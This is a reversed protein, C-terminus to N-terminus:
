SFNDNSAHDGFSSASSSDHSHADLDSESSWTSSAGGSHSQGLGYNDSIKGAEESSGGAIGSVKENANSDHMQSNAIQGAIIANLYDNNYGVERSAFYNKMYQDDTQNTVYLGNKDKKTIKKTKSTFDQIRKLYQRKDIDGHWIHFLDGPVYSIKGKVVEFFKKSWIEIEDLNETFAKKICTHNIQGAAAHAIIHDAGGILARDYLPVSQLIERRAGWAFGVHGHDNYMESKWNESTCFNASFSRWVKNNLQNPLASRNVKSLDFGPREENQELHVCYEFPQLINKFKLKEVSEIMWNLNTFLVDADIWFIYKYDPSLDRVIKNLIAEKHWLLNETHIISVGRTEKLEPKADGIVCEVIQHNLHKISNYFLQFANTRYPSNHPNFYCSIVVAEPHTKYKNRYITKNKLQEFM